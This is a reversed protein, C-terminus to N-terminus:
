SIHRPSGLAASDPDSVSVIVSHPPRVEPDPDSDGFMIDPCGSFSLNFDFALDLEGPLAGFIGDILSTTEVGGSDGGTTEDGSDDGSLPVVSSDM